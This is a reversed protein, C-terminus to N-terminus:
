KVKLARICKGAFAYNEAAAGDGENSAVGHAQEFCWSTAAEIAANHVERLANSILEEADDCFAYGESIFTEDGYETVLLQIIKKAKITFDPTTM